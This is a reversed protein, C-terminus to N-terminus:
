FQNYRQLTNMAPNLKESNIMVLLWHLDPKNNGSFPNTLKEGGIEIHGREQRQRIAFFPQILTVPLCVENLSVFCRQM